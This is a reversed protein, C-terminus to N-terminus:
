QSPAILKRHAEAARAMAPPLEPPTLLLAAFRQQEEMSLRIIQMQEITRRAAEQAAGVLFDSVSRGEIEAARRVIELVEPAIRAEVRETRPPSTPMALRRDSIYPLLGYMTLLSKEKTTVGGWGCPTVGLPVRLIRGASTRSKNATKSAFLIDLIKSM